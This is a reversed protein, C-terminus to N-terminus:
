LWITHRIAYEGRVEDKSKHVKYFCVDNDYCPFYGKSKFVTMAERLEERTPVFLLNDSNRGWFFGKETSKCVGVAPAYINRGDYINSNMDDVITRVILEVRDENELVNEPIFNYNEM